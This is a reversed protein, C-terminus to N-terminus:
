GATLPLNALKGDSLFTGFCERLDLVLLDPAEWAPLTAPRQHRKVQLSPAMDTHTKHASVMHDTRVWGIQWSSSGWILPTTKNSNRARFSSIGLPTACYDNWHTATTDLHAQRLWRLSSEPGLV